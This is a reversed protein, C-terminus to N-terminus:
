ITFLLLNINIFIGGKEKRVGGERKGYNLSFEITNLM